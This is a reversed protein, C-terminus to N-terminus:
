GGHEAGHDGHDGHDHGAPVRRRPMPISLASWAVFDQNGGHHPHGLYGELGLRLATELARAPVFRGTPSQDSAIAYLVQTREAVDLEAFSRREGPTSPSSRDLHRALKLVEDRLPRLGPEKCARELYAFVGAASASPIGLAESGPLLDDYMVQLTRAARIDFAPGSLPAPRGGVSRELPVEPADVTLGRHRLWAWTGASLLAAGGGALVARRKM